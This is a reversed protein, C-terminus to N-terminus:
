LGTEKVAKVRELCGQKDACLILVATSVARMERKMGSMEEQLSQIDKKSIGTEFGWTLIAGLAVTIVTLVKIPAQTDETIAKIKERM